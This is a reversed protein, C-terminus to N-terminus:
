YDSIDVKPYHVSRVANLGFPSVICAVHPLILLYTSFCIVSRHMQMIFVYYHFRGVDLKRVALVLIKMKSKIM